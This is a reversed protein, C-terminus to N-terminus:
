FWLLLVVNKHMQEQQLAPPFKTFCDKRSVCTHLKWSFILPSLPFFLNNSPTSIQAHIIDVRMSISCISLCFSTLVWVSNRAMVHKTSVTEHAWQGLLFSSLYVLSNGSYSLASRKNLSRQEKWGKKSRLGFTWPNGPPVREMLANGSHRPWFLLRHPWQTSTSEEGWPWWIYLVSYVVCRCIHLLVHKRQCKM